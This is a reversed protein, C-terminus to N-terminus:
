NTTKQTRSDPPLDGALRLNVAKQLLDFWFPAGQSVALVSILIGIVKLIWGTCSPVARPDGECRICWGLPVPLKTLEQQAQKVLQYKAGLEKEIAADDQAGNKPDGSQGSGGSADGPKGSAETQVSSSGDKQVDKGEQGNAAPPNAQSKDAGKSTKDAYQKTYERAAESMAARATPDNWLVKGISITDANMAACVVLAIVWLWAHAKRKYWGSVGDMADDFWNEIKKREVDAADGANKVINVITTASAAVKADTSSQLGQLVQAFIRSSIYAPRLVGTAGKRLWQPRLMGQILPHAYIAEKLNEDGLLQTIGAELTNARWKMLNAVFEQIASSLASLLLYVFAMSIAFELAPTM